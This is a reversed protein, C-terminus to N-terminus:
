RRLWRNLLLLLAVIGAMGLVGIVLAIALHTIENSLISAIDM